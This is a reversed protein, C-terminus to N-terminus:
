YHKDAFHRIDAFSAKGRSRLTLRSMICQNHSTSLCAIIIGSHVPLRSGENIKSGSATDYCVAM